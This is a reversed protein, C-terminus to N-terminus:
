YRLRHGILVLLFMVGLLTHCDAVWETFEIGQGYYLLYGTVGLTVLLTLNTMGSLLKSNGKLRLGVHSAVFLGAVFWMLMAFLGHIAMLTSGSVFPQIDVFFWKDAYIPVAYLIGSVMLLATTTYLTYKFWPNM